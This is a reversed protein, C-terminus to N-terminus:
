GGFPPVPDHDQPLTQYLRRGLACGPILLFVPLWPCNLPVHINLRRILYSAGKPILGPLMDLLLASGSVLGSGPHRGQAEWLAVAGEGTLEADMDLAEAARRQGLIGVLEWM